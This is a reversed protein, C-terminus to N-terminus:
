YGKMLWCKNIVSVRVVNVAIPIVAVVNSAGASLFAWAFGTLGEGHYTRSGATRCASLTVLDAALPQELIERAYLKRSEAPGALVIASDLPSERNAIAHSAFHLAAFTEPHAARYAAPTAASAVYVSKESFHNAIAELEPRANKLEQFQTGAFGPDGFLLLGRPPLYTSQRLLALSPAVSVTVDEIWYRGGDTVPLSEFNLQHLVGDPEIVVNTGVPVRYHAGLLNTFLWQGAEGGSEAPNDGRQIAADYRRVHEEIESEAPFMAVSRLVADIADKQLYMTVGLWSFFTPEDMSVGYRLLGDLLSEHEFDINAFDVNDPMALGATAIYSRKMTQTGSHDVEIIKLIHAWSPQRLAFTDFGAGLIVYQTIGRSVAAALREETFRSRLVVHSRLALMEPTRYKDATDQILQLADPGLLPLAVPDDFLLPKAELLQHAARLYATGLATHSAKYDSM